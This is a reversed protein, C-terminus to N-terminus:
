VSRPNRRILFYAVTLAGVVVICYFWHFPSPLLFYIVSVLLQLVAYSASVALHPLGWKSTLVQYINLKHPLLINAGAFLRQLTTMCTDFLGVVILICLSADRASLITCILLYAILYGVTIAGVDGSFVKDGANFCIFIVTALLMWSGLAMMNAYESPRYIWIAYLLTSLVVLCYFALMCRIGDIFNFANICCISCIIALIYVHMGSPYFDVKFALATVLIQLLLRPAPPLPHFDDWFSVASLVLGGGLMWCWEPNITSGNHILFAITALVYIIGGGTPTPRDHSSRETVGAVLGLRPAVKIYLWELLFLVTAAILFYM